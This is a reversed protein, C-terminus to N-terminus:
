LSSFFPGHSQVTPVKSDAASTWVLTEQGPSSKRLKNEDRKGCGGRGLREGDAHKNLCFLKKENRSRTMREISAFLYPLTWWIWHEDMEARGRGEIRHWM